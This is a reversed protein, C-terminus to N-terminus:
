AKDMRSRNCQEAKKLLHATFSGDTIGFIAWRGLAINNREDRIEFVAGGSRKEIFKGYISTTDM